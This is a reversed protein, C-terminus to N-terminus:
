GTHHIGCGQDDNFWKLTGTATKQEAGPIHVALRPPHQSAVVASARPVARTSRINGRCSWGLAEDGRTPRYERRHKRCPDRLHSRM